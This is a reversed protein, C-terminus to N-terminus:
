SHWPQFLLENFLKKEIGYRKLPKTLHREARPPPLYTKVKIKRDVKEINKTLTLDRYGCKKCRLGQGIGMSETASGCKPCKPNSLKMIDVLNLIEIKEVNVTLSEEIKKISGSVIVEDEPRLERIIERFKGSPEYVSCDIEGTDDYIKFIVHGGLIIWPMKLIKAHITAPNFEKLESIKYKKEIHQDTGQNSRYIIWCEVPEIPKVIKFGNFVSEATEGRIGYLVPDPGRPAILIQNTDYDINNFTETELKDMEFVSKKDLIRKKGRYQPLRYTLLEFTHDEKLTGGIAALAGILGRRNKFGIANCCFKNILEEAEELKVITQVVKKSFYEMEEPISGKHFVIGPNTNDCNFDAQKEVEEIITKKIKFELEDDFEIRLCIAGNGRTKWPANPNLRLLIPYDAFRVGMKVFKQILTAAIYTTCGGKPSDTDDIGVHLLM